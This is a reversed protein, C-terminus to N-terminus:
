GLIRWTSEIVDTIGGSLGVAVGVCCPRLLCQRTVLRMYNKVREMVHYKGMVHREKDVQM